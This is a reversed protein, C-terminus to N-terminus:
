NNAIATWNILYNATFTPDNVTFTAGTTSKATIVIPQLQPNTDTINEMTATLAYNTSSFATSYTISVTTAGSSMSAVGAFIKLSTLTPVSPTAYTVNGSGDATAVQGSTAAGSTMDAAAVASWTPQGLGSGHLVYNAGGFGASIQVPPNGAGGGVLLVNQTLAPSSALTSTSSFYPIGGSTGTTTLGLTGSTTVPSGTVGFISSVPVSLAVSTVSGSPAGTVQSYPLSLASLTTLTSNSTGTINSATGTTNAANNPIDASVLSRFTPEAASGTTPGAFVTNANQTTLTIGLTGSSTIPSGSVSYIPTTSDDAFAVSTVGGAAPTSWAATGGVVTLIQGTSGIPLNAYNNTGNGYILGGVATSPALANFGTAASTQGTGGNAIAITTGNWVGNTITGISSLTAATTLANLTVLTGNSTAVLSAVSSGPGMATVDGTLQTIGASPAGAIQSYPLSLASLTTLTSNTTGSINGATLGTATGTINTGVLASPTGLNPTVLVPSTALVVSGSGTAAAASIATGNGQLIGTITTSLTIAPTTTANAVTGAFGNASVVSVSTVGTAPINYYGLVSSGNTGYYQTATPTATDNVLTVVGANNFLSNSFTLPSSTAAWSLVGSGDNTLVYGASGAQAAPWTVSYSTTTASAFQSIHGSVSGSISVEDGRSNPNFSM